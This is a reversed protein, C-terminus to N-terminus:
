MRTIMGRIRRDEEQLGPLMEAIKTEMEDLNSLAKGLKEYVLELPDDATPDLVVTINAKGDESTAKGFCAGNVNISGPSEEDIDIAFIPENTDEDYMTLAEPHLKKLQTIEEPTMTSKVVCASGIVIAQAANDKNALASITTKETIGHQALTKDLDGLSLTFGDMAVSANVYNVDHKELIQRVTMNESVIDSIRPNNTVITVKIM